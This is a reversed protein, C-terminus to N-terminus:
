GTAEHGEDGVAHQLPMFEEPYSFKLGDAEIFTLVAHAEARKRNLYEEFEDQTMQRAARELNVQALIIDGAVLIDELIDVNTEPLEFQRRDDQISDIYMLLTALPFRRSRLSGIGVQLLAERFAVDHFVISLGALYIHKALFRRATHDTQQGALGQLDVLLRMCSAVGHGGRVLSEFMANDFPHTAPAFADVSWGADITPQTLHVYLSTISSRAMECEVQWFESNLAAIAEGSLRNTKFIMEPFRQLLYGVDHFLATLLWVYEISFGPEELRWETVYETLSGYMRDIVVCGLLFNHFAHFFHERGRPAMCELKHLLELPTYAGVFRQDIAILDQFARWLLEAEQEDNIRAEQLLKVHKLAFDALVARFREDLNELHGVRAALPAPVRCPIERLAPIEVPPLFALIGYDSNLGAIIPISAERCAAAIVERDEGDPVFFAPQLKRETNRAEEMGQVTSLPVRDGRFIDICWIADGLEYVYHPVWPVKELVTGTGFLVDAGVQKPEGFRSLFHELTEQLPSKEEVM